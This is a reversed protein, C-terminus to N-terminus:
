SHLFCMKLYIMGKYMKMIKFPKTRWPGKGNIGAQSQSARSNPLDLLQLQFSIMPHPWPSQKKRFHCKQFYWDNHTVLLVCSFYILYIYLIYLFLTYFYHLIYLSLIWFPFELHELHLINVLLSECGKPINGRRYIWIIQLIKRTVKSMSFLVKFGASVGFHM